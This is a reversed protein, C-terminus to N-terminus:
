LGSFIVVAAATNCGAREYDRHQRCLHSAHTLRHKARPTEGGFVPPMCALLPACWRERRWSWRFRLEVEYVPDDEQREAVGQPRTRCGSREVRELTM